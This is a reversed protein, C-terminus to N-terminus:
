SEFDGAKCKLYVIKRANGADLQMTYVFQAVQRQMLRAQPNSDAGANEITKIADDESAGIKRFDATAAAVKGLTLCISESPSKKEVAGAVTVNCLSFVISVSLNVLYKM